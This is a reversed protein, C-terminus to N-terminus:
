NLLKAVTLGDGSYNVKIALTCFANLTLYADWPPYTESRLFDSINWYTDEYQFFSSNEVGEYSGQFEKQAAKPLDQFSLLECEQQNVTQM